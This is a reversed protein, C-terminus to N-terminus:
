SPEYFSHLSPLPLLLFNLNRRTCDLLHVVLFVCSVVKSLESPTSLLLFPNYHSHFQYFVPLTRLFLFSQGLFQFVLLAALFGFLISTLLLCRDQLTEFTHPNLLLLFQMSPLSPWQQFYSLNLRPSYFHLM